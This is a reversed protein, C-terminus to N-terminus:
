LVGDPLDGIPFGNFPNILEFILDDAHCEVLFGTKQDDVKVVVACLDEIKKTKAIRGQSDDVGDVDLFDDDMSIQEEVALRVLRFGVVGIDQIPSDINWHGRQLRPHVMDGREKRLGILEERDVVIVGMASTRIGEDDVSVLLIGDRDEERVIGIEVVHGDSLVDDQDDESFPAGFAESEFAELYPGIRCCKM